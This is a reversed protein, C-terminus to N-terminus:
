VLTAFFDDIAALRDRLWFETWANPEDQFEIGSRCAVYAAFSDAFDERPNWKGYDRTFGDLGDDRNDFYWTSLNDDKAQEHGAPVSRGAFDEWGGVARYAPVFRNEEPDDWNHGIEHFLTTHVADAARDMGNDAFSMSGGGSNWARLGTNVSGLTWSGDQYIWHHLTGQRTLTLEQGTSSELLKNNNTLAVLMAFGEDLLEIESPTWADADVRIWGIQKGFYEDRTVGDAFTIRTDPVAAFDAITSTGAWSGTAILFRDAGDGGNLVNVGTGGYLGDHGSHGYLTDRGNGGMLIDAGGAAYYSSTIMSNGSDTYTRSAEDGILTDAGGQGSILDDGWGGVIRDPGFGGSLFDNGGRGEITVQIPTTTSQGTGLKAYGVDVSVFEPQNSGIVTIKNLGIKPFAFFKDGGNSKTDVLLLGFSNNSHDTDQVEISGGAPDAYIQLHGAVLSATATM